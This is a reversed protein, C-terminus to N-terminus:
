PVVTWSLSNTVWASNGTANSASMFYYWSGQTQFTLSVNLTLYNGSRNVSWSNVQCVGNSNDGVWPGNGDQTGNGVFGYVGDSRGLSLTSNGSHYYLWCGNSLNPLNPDSSLFPQVVTIASAGANDQVQAVFDRPTGVSGSSCPPYCTAIYKISTPVPDQAFTASSISSDVWGSEYAIAKITTTSSVTVPGTYITGTTASPTSGDTTYRITAGTTTTAIVVSMPMAYTGAGPTFTPAAVTGTITYSASGVGSDNWGSEYAIAKVTTSSAVTVPGSYVTGQTGSPTTGDTTYRITAGPTTTSIAISQATTYTGSGPSYTPTAATGTITFAAANVASDAWGTKYAIAKLMISSSVSVPGSYITGVTQSPTTGDTTYRITAGATTTSIGVSQATTYTGAGPSFTPTAVTGTIIYSALNVTSNNWGSEYAIARVTTSNAVTIPGGYVTGAAENPTTGDTTYRITAGPTTTSITVSQAATYTGGGPSFTPTAATQLAVTETAVVRGNIRIYDRVTANSESQITYTASQIASDTWTTRYAIARVTMSNSVAVASNYITGATESPNSGDTTYRITAGPTTTSITVMQGPGYTGTPPQLSPASAAFTFAASSVSSDLWGSEYAIAKVTAASSLTFQGTYPTGVTATPTSGDTTYRISAGPTSSTLTIATPSTYSGAAPSITPAGAAASILYTATFIGSDNLGTAYAIAKLTTTASVSVPATYVTGSTRSPPTGDTTYRITANPTITTMTVSQGSTYSGGVPSFTPTAAAGTITYIASNVTSDTWGAEYGIAKLTMTSAVSIASTYVTGATASPTSGDTTYRITANPTTTSITVSQAASYVGGAPTFTPTAVQQSITYLGSAVGSDNWGAKYGIAKVTTTISATFPSLYV